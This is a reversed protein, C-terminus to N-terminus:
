LTLLECQGSVSNPSYFIQFSQTASINRHIIIRRMEDPFHFQSKRLTVMCEDLPTIFRPYIQVVLAESNSCDDCPRALQSGFKMQNSVSVSHICSLTPRFPYVIILVAQSSIQRILALM